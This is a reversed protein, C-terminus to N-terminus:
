VQSVEAEAPQHADISAAASFSQRWAPNTYKDAIQSQHLVMDAGGSFCCCHYCSCVCCACALVFLLFCGGMGIWAWLPLEQGLVTYMETAWSTTAECKNEEERWETGDGCLVDGTGEASGDTSGVLVCADADEDWVTGVGCALEMYLSVPVCTAATANWVLGAVCNGTTTTTTDTGTTTTTATTETGTVSTTTTETKTTTSTRPCVHVALQLCLFSGANSTLPTLRVFRAPMPEHFFQSLETDKTAPGDFVKADQVGASGDTVPVM